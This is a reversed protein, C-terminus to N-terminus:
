RKGRPSYIISPSRIFSMWGSKISIIMGEITTIEIHSGPLSTELKKIQYLNLIKATMVNDIESELRSKHLQYFDSSIELAGDLATEVSENVGIRYSKDLLRLVFWSLPITPLILLLSVFIFIKGRVTKM